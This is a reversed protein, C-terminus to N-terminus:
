TQLPIRSPPLEPRTTIPDSPRPNSDRISSLCKKVCIQQLIQLTKKFLGFIFLFLPRPQGMKIFLFGQTPLIKFNNFNQTALISKKWRLLKIRLTMQIIIEQATGESSSPKSSWHCYHSNKLSIPWGLFRKWKNDDKWVFMVIKVVFKRSIIDMWYITSPNSSVVKQVRTEEWLWKRLVRNTM